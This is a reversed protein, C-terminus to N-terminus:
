HQMRPFAMFICDMRALQVVALLLVDRSWLAVAKSLGGCQILQTLTGRTGGHVDRAFGRGCLFHKLTLTKSLGYRKFSFTKPLLIKQLKNTTM